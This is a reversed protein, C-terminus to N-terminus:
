LSSFIERLPNKWGSKGSGASVQKLLKKAQDFQKLLRNIEQVSTGSGKAIRKRRSGNIWDPNAREQRTMSSLIAETHRLEREMESPDPLRMNGGGIGRMGPIMELLRRPDGIKKMQGLQERFDDLTLQNSRIKEQVKKTEQHSFTKEAQEILSLMDGMGLIRSAMRDPYFPEFATLKEGVGIFKIPAGTVARISLLAGGRADGEAKTLIVGTIGVTEHFRQAVHVAAQGTMADAVLLVEHPAIRTKMEGLEDMLADDVQVRGATDFILIDACQTQGAKLGREVVSFLDEGPGPLIVPVDIGKALTQLQDCAAPRKLDTAVLLVQKRESKYLRAMKAVTTTKGTGQLGVLMIKTPPNSVLAVGASKEGMLRSLEQWVLKVIQQGPTLSALIEKGVAKQRLDDVFSKVVKFHVDASLLALRVERLAEDINQETLVGRGRIKRFLADFQQTLSELM